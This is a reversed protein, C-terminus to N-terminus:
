ASSPMRSGRQDRPSPSTYLLCTVCPISEGLWKELSSDRLCAEHLDHLPSVFPDQTTFPWRNEFGLSARMMKTPAQSLPSVAYDGNCRAAEGAGCQRGSLLDDDTGALERLWSSVAGDVSELCLACVCAAADRAGKADDVDDDDLLPPGQLVETALLFM